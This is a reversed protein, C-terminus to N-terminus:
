PVDMHEEYHNYWNVNRDVISLPERKETGQGANIAQLNKESPWESWHSTTGWQLKSKWKEWPFFHSQGINLMKAHTLQSNTHRRQLFAQKSRGGMKQNHQKNSQYQAAHVAQINQLHIRQWNSWKYVNEEKWFTTEILSVELGGLLIDVLDQM